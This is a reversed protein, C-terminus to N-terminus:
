FSHTWREDKVCARLRKSESNSPTTSSARSHILGHVDILRRKSDDLNEVNFVRHQM